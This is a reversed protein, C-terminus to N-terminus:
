VRHLLPLSLPSVGDKQILGPPPIPLRSPSLIGQGSLATHTRGGGRASLERPNNTPRVKKMGELMYSQM